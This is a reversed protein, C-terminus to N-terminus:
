LAEIEKTKLSVTIKLDECLGILDLEKISEEVKKLKEFPKQVTYQNINKM